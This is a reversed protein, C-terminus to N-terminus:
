KRNEITYKIDVYEPHCKHAESNNPIPIRTEIALM